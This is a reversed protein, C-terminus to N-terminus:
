ELPNCGATAQTQPPNIDNVMGLAATAQFTL